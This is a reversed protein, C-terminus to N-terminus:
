NAFSCFSAAAPNQKFDQLGTTAPYAGMLLRPLVSAIAAAGISRRKEPVFGVPSEDTKEIRVAPVTLFGELPERKSARM